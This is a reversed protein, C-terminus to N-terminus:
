KATRFIDEASIDSTHIIDDWKDAIKAVNGKDDYFLYQGDKNKDVKTIISSTATELDIINTPLNRIEEADKNKIYGSNILLDVKTELEQQQKQSQSYTGFPGYENLLITNLQTYAEEETDYHELEETNGMFGCKIQARCISVELTEQNIHYKAM